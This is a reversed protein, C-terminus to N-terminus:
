LLFEPTGVALVYIGLIAVAWLLAGIAIWVFNAPTLNDNSEGQPDGCGINAVVQAKHLIIGIIPFAIFGIIDVIPTGIEKASMRETVTEIISLIVYGTALGSPFWKYEPDKERVRVDFLEFLSHTFFISFLARMVPWMDENNSVKYLAWHKYFWYISYLGLTSFFLILFKRPSVIYFESQDTEKTLVESDPAQYVNKEM